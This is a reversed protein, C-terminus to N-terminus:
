AKEITPEPPPLVAEPPPTRRPQSQQVPAAPKPEEGFLLDFLTRRKQQQAVEFREGSQALAPGMEACAFLAIFLILLLRKMPAGPPFSKANRANAGPWPWPVGQETIAPCRGPGRRQRP